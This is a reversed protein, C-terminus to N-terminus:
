KINIEDEFDIDYDPLEQPSYIAVQNLAMNVLKEYEEGTYLDALEEEYFQDSINFAIDIVGELSLDREKINNLVRRDSIIDFYYTMEECSYAYSCVSLLALDDMSYEAKKNFYAEIHGASLKCKLKQFESLEDHSEILSTLNIFRVKEEQSKSVISICADFKANYIEYNLDHKEQDEPDEINARDEKEHSVLSKKMEEIIFNFRKDEITLLDNSDKKLPVIENSM